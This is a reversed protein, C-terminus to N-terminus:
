NGGKASDDNGNNEKRYQEAAQWRFVARLYAVKSPYNSEIPKAAPASDIMALVNAREATDESGLIRYTSTSIDIDGLGLYSKKRDRADRLCKMLTFAYISGHDINEECHDILEQLDSDDISFLAENRCARKILTKWYDSLPIYEGSVLTESVPFGGALAAWESLINAYNAPSKSPDKIFREMVQQKTIIRDHLMAAQYGDHFDRISSEWSQIWYHSNELGRTETTIVFSPLELGPTQIANIQAIVSVLYEMNQAIISDTKATRIAPIHFRMKGTSKLLSLYILYSDIPPLKEPWFKSICDLLQESSADFVPHWTERSQLGMPVHQISFEVSSLACIAKM